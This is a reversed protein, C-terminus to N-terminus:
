TGYVRQFLYEATMIATLNTATAPVEPFISADVVRVNAVSHVAGVSDVVAWEDDDGGMPVTSTTHEYSGLNDLIHRELEADDRVTDGPLLEFEAVESFREGAGIRRCLKVAEVMRRRDRPEALFNYDIVPADRPDRSSLRVSGISDPRIISVALVIAGGTPSSEPEILHTASIHIDLEDDAAESSRTWILAGGPPTMALKGPRLAYVNYFFPQNQLHLGVPLDAVVPIGLSRLHDAPGIGSRMLIAASGYAGASLIVEDATFETGDTAVVGRAVDGDLILRDIETGGRLTLNPRRRVGDSLYAMGTNQRVGELVNLQYATVGNQGTGNVDALRELGESVSADIFARVSPTLEERRMQHIPLPGSRGRLSDDGASTNELRKYAELM